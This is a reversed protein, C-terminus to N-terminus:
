SKKTKTKSAYSITIHTKMKSFLAQDVTDTSAAIITVHPVMPMRPNKTMM